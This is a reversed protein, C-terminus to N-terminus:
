MDAATTPMSEVQSTVKKTTIARNRAPRTTFSRAAMIPRGKLPRGTFIARGTHRNRNPAMMAPPTIALSFAGWIELARLVGLKTSIEVPSGM